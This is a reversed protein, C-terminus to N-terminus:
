HISTFVMVAVIVTLLGGTVSSIINRMERKYEIEEDTVNTNDGYWSKLISGIVYISGIICIVCLVACIIMLTNM